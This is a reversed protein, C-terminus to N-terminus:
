LRLYDNGPLQRVRNKLELALLASAVQSATLGTKRIVHDVSQPECSLADYVLAEENGLDRRSEPTPARREQLREKFAGDLQPLLEDIVDSATEVLKAGMKILSNPGKSMEMKVAGPVAFVERGQDAALAATILSGSNLTAETVIVGLSLGSIIRNRRPFHYSHPASGMPLESVVAGCREIQRRLGAHVPPYTRDIGCGLVAITRGGAALAGRHAAGDIGIAMGSVVTFGLAALERSLEETFLRGAQSARRAGVIAVAHRDRVDIGGSMYLVAPPDAITRLCAPYADDAYTVAAMGSRDLTRIERDIQREADASLGGRIAKALNVHCGLAVLSEEAANLVAEPSGLAQVLALLTADGVGPIARLTLWPRIKGSDHVM